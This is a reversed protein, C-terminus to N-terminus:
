CFYLRQFDDQTAEKFGKGAILQMDKFWEPANRDNKGGKAAWSVASACNRNEPADLSACGSAFGLEASDADEQQRELDSALKKGRRQIANLACQGEDSGVCEDDSYLQAEVEQYAAMAAKQAPTPQLSGASVGLVLLAGLGLMKSSLSPAM